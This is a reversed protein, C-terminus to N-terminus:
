TQQFVLSHHSILQSQIKDLTECIKDLQTNNLNYTYINNKVANDIDKKLIIFADDYMGNEKIKELCLDRLKIAINSANNLRETDINLNIIIMSKCKLLIRSIEIYNDLLKLKEKYRM